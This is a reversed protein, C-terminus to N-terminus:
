EEKDQVLSYIKCLMKRESTHQKSEDSQTLTWLKRGYMLTHKALTKYIRVKMVTTLLQSHSYIHIYMIKNPIATACHNLHQAVFSFTAPAIGALTLPNKM